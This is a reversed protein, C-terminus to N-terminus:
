AWPREKGCGVLLVREALVGPVQYLLLMQGFKGELDGRKLVATLHGESAKDLEEATQSLRKGEFVGVVLCASRQKQPQGSKIGFEM